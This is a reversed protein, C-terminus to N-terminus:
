PVSGSFATMSSFRSEGQDVIYGALSMSRIMLKAFAARAPIEEVLHEIRM